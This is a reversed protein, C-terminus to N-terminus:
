PQKSATATPFALAAPRLSLQAGQFFSPTVAKLGVRTALKAQGEDRTVLCEASYRIATAVILADFKWYAAETGLATAQEDRLVRPPFHQACVEACRGDFAVTRVHKVKPLPSVSRKRLIEALSLTSILLDRRLNVMARVFEDSDEDEPRTGFFASILVSTDLLARNPLKTSDITM